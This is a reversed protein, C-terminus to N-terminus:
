HVQNQTAADALQMSLMQPMDQLLTAVDRALPQAALQGFSWLLYVLEKASASSLQSQAARASAALAFRVNVTLFLQEKVTHGATLM